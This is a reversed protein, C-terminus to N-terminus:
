SGSKTLVSSILQVIYSLLGIVGIGISCIKIMMGFEKKSPKTSIKFIRRTNMWFKKLGTQNASPSDKSVSM